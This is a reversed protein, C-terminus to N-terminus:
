SINHLLHLTFLVIHITSNFFLTVHFFAFYLYSMMNRLCLAQTWKSQSM